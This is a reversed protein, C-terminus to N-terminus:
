NPTHSSNLNTSDHPYGRNTAACLGLAIDLSHNAQDRKAAGPDWSCYLPADRTCPTCSRGWAAEAEEEADFLIECSERELGEILHSDWCMDIVAEGVEDGPTDTTSNSAHLLESNPLPDSSLHRPLFDDVVELGVGLDGALDAFFNDIPAQNNAGFIIKTM